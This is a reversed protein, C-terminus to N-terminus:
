NSLKSVDFRYTYTYIGMRNYYPPMTGEATIVKMVNPFNRLLSKMEDPTIKTEIRLQKFLMKSLEAGVELVGDNRQTYRYILRANSDANNLLEIMSTIDEDGLWAYLTSVLPNISKTGNITEEVNIKANANNVFIGSAFLSAILCLSKIKNQKMNM